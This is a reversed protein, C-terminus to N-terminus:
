WRCAIVTIMMVVDIVIRELVSRPQASYVLSPSDFVLRALRQKRQM